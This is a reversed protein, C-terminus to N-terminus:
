PTRTYILLATQQARGTQVQGQSRPLRMCGLGSNCVVNDTGLVYMCVCSEVMTVCTLVIREECFFMLVTSGVAFQRLCVQV